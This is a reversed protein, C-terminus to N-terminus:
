AVAAVGTFFSSTHSNNGLARDVPGDTRKISGHLCYRVLQHMLPSAAKGNVARFPTVVTGRPNVFYATAVMELCKRQTAADKIMMEKFKRNADVRAEYLWREGRSHTCLEIMLERVASAWGDALAPHRYCRVHATLLTLNMLLNAEWHNPVTPTGVSYMAADFDIAYPKSDTGFVYNGPKADFSLVGLRSQAFLVPLMKAAVSRGSKRLSDVFEMSQQNVRSSTEDVHDELLNNLDIHARRMVYLTGYLTTPEGSKDNVTLAPFMLAAYCEPAFDNVAGHLTFYVERTLNELKKYRHFRGSSNELQDSDPRTVRFVLDGVPVTKGERDVIPPLYPVSAKHKKNGVFVMNYEGNVVEECWGPESGPTKYITNFTEVLRLWGSPHRWNGAAEGWASIGKSDAFVVSTQLSCALTEMSPMSAQRPVKGRLAALTPVRECHQKAPLRAATVKRQSPTNNEKAGRNLAKAARAQAELLKKKATAEELARAKKQEEMRARREAEENALRTDRIERRKAIGADRRQKQKATLAAIKAAREKEGAKKKANTARQKLAIRLDSRVM